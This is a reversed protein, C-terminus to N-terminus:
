FWNLIFARNVRHKNHLEMEGNYLNAKIRDIEEFINQRAIKPNKNKQYIKIIMENVKDFYKNIHSGHHITGKLASGEYMPLSIANRPDNIDINLKKYIKRVMKARDDNGAGIHHTQYKYLNKGFMKTCLKGLFTTPKIPKAGALEMNKRLVRASSEKGFGGAKEIAKEIKKTVQKSTVYQYEKPNFFLKFDDITRKIFGNKNEVSVIQKTGVKSPNLAKSIKKTSNKLAKPSRTVVKTEIKEGVIKAGKKAVVKVTKKAAIKGAQKALVAVAGVGTCVGVATTSLDIVKYIIKIAKEHKKYFIIAKNLFSQEQTNQKNNNSITEDNAQNDVNEREEATSWRGNSLKGDCLEGEYLDGNEFLINVFSPLKGNGDFNGTIIAKETDNVLYLSGAGKIQGNEFEGEYRNGNKFYFIGYGNFTDNIFEGEYINGNAFHYEGKGSKKNEVFNGVYWGKISGDPNYYEIKGIGNIWGQEWQGFYKYNKTTYVGYGNQFDEKWEGEYVDGNKWLYKGYGSKEDNEWTGFYCDGNYFVADGYGNRKDDEWEGSYTNSSDFILYGSGDLKGEKWDGNYYVNNNNDSLIGFGDLKGDKWTGLKVTNNSFILIGEGDYKNDKWYGEYKIGDYYKKIGKGNAKGDLIEGIYEGDSDKKITDSSYKVIKNNEFFGKTIGNEEYLIGYGNAKGDHWMGDYFVKHNKYKILHGEPNKNLFNGIYIDTEDDKIQVAYGNLKGNVFNGIIKWNENNKSYHHIDNKDISGYYADIEQESILTDKSFTKLIGKGNIVEGFHQGEWLYQFNNNYKESNKSFFKYNNQTTIWDCYCNTISLIILLLSISLSFLKKIMNIIM